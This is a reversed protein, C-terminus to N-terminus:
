RVKNEKTLDSLLREADRQKQLRRRDQEDAFRSHALTPLITVASKSTKNITKQEKLLARGNESTALLLAANPLAALAEKKIDFLSFLIMRRLHAKTMHKASLAAAFGAFDDNERAARVLKAEYDTPVDFIETRNSFLLACRLASYLSNESLKRPLLASSEDAVFAPCFRRYADHETARRLYSASAFFGDKQECPEKGDHEAGVREIPFLALSFGQRRAACVYEVGLLNNPSAVLRAYKEGLERRVWEERVAAFGGNKQQRVAEKLANENETDTLFAALTRYDDANGSECGFALTDCLGSGALIRVASAAFREATACSFPFPNELVLDAGGEIAWKARMEKPYASPEGRQVFNGSMACVIPAGGLERARKLLYAHGNHFPDLECVIGVAM